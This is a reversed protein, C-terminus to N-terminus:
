SRELITKLDLSEDDLEQIKQFLNDAETKNGINVLCNAKLFIAEPDSSNIELIKDLKEMCKSFESKKFLSVANSLELECLKAQVVGANYWSIADDPNLKLINEYCVMESEYDRNGKYIEALEKWALEFTSDIKLAEKIITIANDWQGSDKKLFNAKQVLTMPNYPDLFLSQDFLKKTDDFNEHRMRRAYAKRMWAESNESDLKIAVDFNEISDDIRNLRRLIEGKRAYGDSDLSFKKLYNSITIESMLLNNRYLYILCLEKNLLNEDSQSVTFLEFATNFDFHLFFINGLYRYNKETDFNLAKICSANPNQLKYLNVNAILHESDFHLVQSFIDLAKEKFGFNQLILGQSVLVDKDNKSLKISTNIFHDIKKFNKKNYSFAHSFYRWTNFDNENLSLSKAFCQQAMVLNNQYLNVLGKRQWAISYNPDSNISNIYFKSASLYDMKDLFFDGKFSWAEANFKNKKLEEEVFELSIGSPALM